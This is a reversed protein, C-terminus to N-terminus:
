RLTRRAAALNCHPDPIEARAAKVQADALRDVTSRFGAIVDPPVDQVTLILAEANVHAGGRTGKEIADRVGERTQWATVCQEAAHVVQEHDREAQVHALQRDTQHGDWLAWSVALTFAAIWISLKHRALFTL